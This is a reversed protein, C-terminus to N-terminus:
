ISHGNGPGPDRAATVSREIWCAMYRPSANCHYPSSLVQTSSQAPKWLWEKLGKLSGFSERWLFGTTCWSSLTLEGSQSPLPVMSFDRDLACLIIQFLQMTLLINETSEAGLFDVFFTGSAKFFCRVKSSWSASSLSRAQFMWETAVFRWRTSSSSVSILESIACCRTSSDSKLRTIICRRLWKESWLRSSPLRDLALKSSESPAISSRLCAYRCDFRWSAARWINPGFAWIYTNWYQSSLAYSAFCPRSCTIGRVLAGILCIILLRRSSIMERSSKASHHTTSLTSSCFSMAHHKLLNASM